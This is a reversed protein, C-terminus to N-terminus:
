SSIVETDTKRIFLPRPTEKPIMLRLHKPYVRVEVSNSMFPIPEADVHLYLPTDSELLLERFNVHRVYKSDVHHGSLLDLARGVIDGLTDGEFLWLDFMGDDLFASPSIESLGGAYLHINSIVALLYHGSIHL